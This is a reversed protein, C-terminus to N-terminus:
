SKFKKDLEARIKEALKVLEEMGKAFTPLIQTIKDIFGPSQTLLETYVDAIFKGVAKGDMTTSIEVTFPTKGWNGKITTKDM